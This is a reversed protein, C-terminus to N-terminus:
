RVTPAVLPAIVGDPDPSFVNALYRDLDTAFATSTNENPLAGVVKGDQGYAEIKVKHDKNTMLVSATGAPLERSYQLCLKQLLGSLRFYEEQQAPTLM